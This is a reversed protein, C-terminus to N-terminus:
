RPAGPLPPAHNSGIANIYLIKRGPGQLQAKIFRSADSQKLAALAKLEKERHDSSGLPWSTAVALNGVADNLSEPGAKIEEALGAKLASFEEASLETFAKIARPIFEAVRSALLAAPQKESQVVGFLEVIGANYNARGSVLYGLQQETRLDNYFLSKFFAGFVATRAWNEPTSPGMQAYWRTASNPRVLQTSLTREPETLKPIKPLLSRFRRDGGLKLQRALSDLAASMRGKDYEGYLAGQLWGKAFFERAIVPLDERSLRRTADAQEEIKFKELGLILRQIDRGQEYPEATVPYNDLAIVKFDQFLKFRAPSVQFSAATKAVADIFKPLDNSYGTAVLGLGKMDAEIQLEFGSTLYDTLEQGIYDSLLESYLSLAARNRASQQGLPSYWRLAVTSKPERVKLDKEGWVEGFPRSWFRAPELRSFSESVRIPRGGKPEKYVPVERPLVGNPPPIFVPTGATMGKLREHLKDDRVLDFRAGTFPETRAPELEPAMAIIILREPTLEALAKKVGENDFRSPVVADRPYVSLYPVEQLRAAWSSAQDYASNSFYGEAGGMIFKLEILKKWDEFVHAPVGSVQLGKLANWMKEVVEERRAFGEKSVEAVLFFESGDYSEDVFATVGAGLGAEKLQTELGRPDSLVRGALELSRARYDPLTAPIFFGMYISRSGGLPKLYHWTVHHGDPLPSFDTKPRAFNKNPVDSFNERALKEMEELALPSIVALGMLNASYYKEFLKRTSEADLDKLTEVTGTHFRSAPHKPNFAVRLSEYLRIRDNNKRNGHESDVNEKEDKALEPTFLPEVFFRSMRKMGEPLASHNVEFMYNTHDGATYANDAGGNRNMFDSYEGPKPYSKTGLFLMHELYHLAGSADVPDSDSGAGVSLSVASKVAKPDQVLLVRIKNPLELTRFKKPSESAAAAAAPARPVPIKASAAPTLSLSLSLAFAFAGALCPSVLLRSRIMLDESNLNLFLFDQFNVV